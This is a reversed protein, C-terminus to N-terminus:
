VCETLNFARVRHHKEGFVIQDRHTILASEPWKTQTLKTIRVYHCRLRASEVQDICRIKTVHLRPLDQHDVVISQVRRKSQGLHLGAMTNELVHIERSRVRYNEATRDVLAAMLHPLLKGALM